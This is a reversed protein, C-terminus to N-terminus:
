RHSEVWDALTNKSRAYGAGCVLVLCGGGCLLSSQVVLYARVQPTAPIRAFRDGKSCAHVLLRPSIHIPCRATRVKSVLNTETEYAYCSGPSRVSRHRLCGPNTENCMLELACRSSKDIKYPLRQQDTFGGVNTQKRIAAAGAVGHHRSVHVCM